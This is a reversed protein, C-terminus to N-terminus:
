VVLMDVHKSKMLTGDRVHYLRRLKIFLIKGTVM